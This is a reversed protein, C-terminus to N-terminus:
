PSRAVRFGLNDSSDVVIAKARSASRISDADHNWAGGRVVRALLERPAGTIWASGDGPAFLYNKHYVDEVWEAVNGHMDFLGFANPPFQGVPATNEWQDRGEAWGNCCQEDGFNATEHSVTDGWWYATDTGARAAYEWESESPLRYSKGTMESLKKLYLQIENWSVSEVPCTDGCKQNSSPTSGMVAKWQAQTVETRGIMFTKVSVEHVPQETSKGDKSGRLFTGAPVAVIEPCADCDKVLKVDRTKAPEALQSYANQSLLALFLLKFFLQMSVFKRRIM